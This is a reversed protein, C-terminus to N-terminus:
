VHDNEEQGVKILKIGLESIKSGGYMLIFASVSWVVLNLSKTIFDLPLLGKIQDQMTKQLLAQIDQGATTTSANKIEQPAQFFAPVEAKSSFINYSHWLTLAILLLGSFLLLWGSTKTFSNM